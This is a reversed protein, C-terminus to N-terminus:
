FLAPQKARFIGFSSTYGHLFTTGGVPGIEGNCFFGGLPIDGFYERFCESDHNPRGYLYQGRGLCSFLLAGSAEGPHSQKYNRLLIRLDDASTAADRLHFQVTRENRMVEGVVLAGTSAELGLINRVLFDGPEFDNKFEDMVVGIFLSHRAIDQDKQKLKVLVDHLANVAPQGDLEYVFNKNCRTVRMPWGIPRCGQAVVTDVVVNGSLALGVAGSRYIQRNLFLANLGPRGAGSALGGLKIARPFAYDLGQVLADIRISFPDPLLLFNPEAESKVGVLDEWKEPAADADPLEESGLSFPHIAVGPMIAATLALAPQQEIEQWGGILGGASCGIFTRPSLTGCILNPLEAYDNIYHPSVFGVVLDPTQNGLAGKIKGACDNVLSELTSEGDAPNAIASAWKM